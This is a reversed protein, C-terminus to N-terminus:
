KPRQGSELQRADRRLTYLWHKITVIAATSAAITTVVDAIVDCWLALTQFTM